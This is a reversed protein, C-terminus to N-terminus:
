EPPVLKQFEPSNRLPDFRRDTRVEALLNRAKPNQKLRKVQTGFAQFLVGFGAVEKGLHACIAAKVRQAVRRFE